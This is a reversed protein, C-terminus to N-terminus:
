VFKIRYVGFKKTEETVVQRSIVKTMREPINNLVCRSDWAATPSRAGAAIPSVVVVAVDDATATPTPSIANKPAVLPTTPEPV